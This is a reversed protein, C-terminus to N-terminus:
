SASLLNAHCTTWRPASTSGITSRCPRRWRSCSRRTRVRPESQAPDRASSTPGIRATRESDSSRRTPDPRDERLGSFSCTNATWSRLCWSRLTRFLTTRPVGLTRAIQKYGLGNERLEIAKGVDFAVRPRGIKVGEARARAQGAKVREVILEREFEAIAGLFTLVMRGYASTTDIQQTTSVFGVGAAQLRQLVSLVVVDFRHRAADALLRNLGPRDAKAGSVGTDDYVEVVQWGQRRCYGARRYAERPASLIPGLVGVSRGISSEKQASETHKRSGKETLACSFSRVCFPASRSSPVVACM